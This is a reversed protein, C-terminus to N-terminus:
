FVENMLENFMTGMSKNPRRDSAKLVVGMDTKTLQYYFFFVEKTTTKHYDFRGWKIVYFNITSENEKEIIYQGDSFWKVADLEKSEFGKELHLNRKYTHIQIPKRKILSYESLYANSDNYAISNWLISNLITPTSNLEDYKIENKTLAEEFKNHAMYKFVFTLGMYFFSYFVTWKFLKFRLPNEKKFFMLILLGFFFPLTYLPDIISINNFAVQYNSFPLFFRTGYTTCCDLLAHTSLGLFWLLYWQKFSINKKFLVYFLWTFPLALLVHVFVSHSYSRHILLQSYDDKYIFNLLVDLDPITGAIGGILLAKNGIKKGLVAEGVAAGLVFQTVSDM